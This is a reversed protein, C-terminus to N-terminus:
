RIKALAISFNFHSVKKFCMTLFDLLFYFNIGINPSLALIQFRKWSMNQPILFIYVNPHCGEVLMNISLNLQLQYLHFSPLYSVLLEFAKEKKEVDPLM